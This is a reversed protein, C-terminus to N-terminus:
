NILRAQTHNGCVKATSYKRLNFLLLLFFDYDYRPSYRSEHPVLADTGLRAFPIFRALNLFVDEEVKIKLCVIKSQKM